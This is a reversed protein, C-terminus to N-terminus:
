KNKEELRKLLSEFDSFTEETWLKKLKDKDDHYTMFSECFNEEINTKAYQSVFNEPGIIKRKRTMEAHSSFSTKDFFRSSWKSFLNRSKQDYKIRKLSPEITGKDSKGITSNDYLHESLAHGFEHILNDKISSLKHPKARLVFFDKGNKPLKSQLGIANAPFRKIKELKGARRWRTALEIRAINSVSIEYKKAMEKIAIFCRAIDPKSIGSIIIETDSFAPIKKLDDISLKKLAEFDIDQWDKNRIKNELDESTNIKSIDEWLKKAKSQNGKGTTRKSRSKPKDKIKTSSSGIYARERPLPEKVELKYSDPVLVCHCHSRCVTAGTRPLGEAQWNEYSQVRNHRSVCDPCSRTFFTVWRYRTNKGLEFDFAQQAAADAVQFIYSQANVVTERFYTGTERRPVDGRIESSLRKKINKEAVGNVLLSTVLQKTDIVYKSTATDLRAILFDGEKTRIGREKIRWNPDELFEFSKKILSIDKLVERAFFEGANIAAPFYLEVTRKVFGTTLSVIERQAEGDQKRTDSIILSAIIEANKQFTRFLKTEIETKIADRSFDVMDLFHYLPEIQAKNLFFPNVTFTM